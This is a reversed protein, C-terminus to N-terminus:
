SIWIKRLAEESQLMWQYLDILTDSPSHKPKWGTERMVKSSDTIYLRLDASRNEPISVIPIDKGTIEQCLRTTELLSLSSEVGGGANYTQGNFENWRTIQTILLDALDDVHLLDRVQKGGGGWGIYSLKQQFHHMAIWLAFVGQDVKGFQGPGTIVGFRNIILPFDYAAAYEVAMYEACLKTAGYISRIGTLPFEETIGKSSVGNCPQTDSLVFRNETETFSLSNILEVPYVRSTSLFLFASQYRRAINLCNIAGTLNTDVVYDPASGYGALVSPEASCEIILGVPGVAELDSPQRVDGYIFDIGNSKLRQLNLESGRRKLNDFATVKLDPWQNKIRIAIHTGVFGAGGTILVHPTESLLVSM